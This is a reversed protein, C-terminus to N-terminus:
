LLKRKLENIKRETKLDLNKQDNKLERIQEELNSESNPLKNKWDNLLEEIRSRSDQKGPDLAEMERTKLTFDQGEQDSADGGGPASLERKSVESALDQLATALKSILLETELKNIKGGTELKSIKGETEVGHILQETKWELIQKESFLYKGVVLVIAAIEAFMTGCLAAFQGDTLVFKGNGILHIIDNIMWTQYVFLFIIVAAFLVQM